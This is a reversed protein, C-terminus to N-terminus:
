LYKEKKSKVKHEITECIEHDPIFLKRRFEGTSRVDRKKVKVIKIINTIITNKVFINKNSKTNLSNEDYDYFMKFFNKETM